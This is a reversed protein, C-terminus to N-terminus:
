MAMQGLPDSWPSAGTSGGIARIESTYFTGPTLGNVLTPHTLSRLHALRSAAFGLTGRHIQAGM